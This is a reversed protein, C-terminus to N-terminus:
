DVEVELSPCGDGDDAVITGALGREDFQEAAVVLGRGAADENVAGVEAVDVDVVPATVEGAAELVEKSEFADCLARHAGPVRRMHVVNFRNGGGDLAGVGAAIDVAPGM